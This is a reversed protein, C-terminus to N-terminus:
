AHATFPHAFIEPIKTDSTMICINENTQPVLLNHDIDTFGPTFHLIVNRIESTSIAGIVDQLSCPKETIVDYLHLEDGNTRGLVILHSEEIYYICDALMYVGFWTLIHRSNTVDFKVSRLTRKEELSLFLDRDSTKLLNLKRPTLSSGANLIPYRFTYDSSFQFGLKEYFGLADDEPFLYIVDFWDQYTDLVFKMLRCALGQKRFEPATMVTGIQLARYEKGEIIWNLKSVSVNSVIRNDHKFSYCIYNENWFGAQYWREFDIGFCQSALQNFSIRLKEIHKYDSVLEFDTM